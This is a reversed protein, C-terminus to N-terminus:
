ECKLVFKPIVYWNVRPPKHLQPFFQNGWHTQAKVQLTCVCACVCLVCVPSHSAVLSAETLEILKFISHNQPAALLSHSISRTSSILACVHDSGFYFVSIVRHCLISLLKCTSLCACFELCLFVPFNFFLCFCFATHQPIFHKGNLQLINRSSLSGGRFGSTVERPTIIHLLSQMM